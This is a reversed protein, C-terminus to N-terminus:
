EYLHYEDSYTVFRWEEVGQNIPQAGSIRRLNALMDVTAKSSTRIVEVQVPCRTEYVFGRDSSGQGRGIEDDYLEHYIPQDLFEDIQEEFTMNKFLGDTERSASYEKFDWLWFYVPEVAGGNKILDDLYAQMQNQIDPDSQDVDRFFVDVPLGPNDMYLQLSDYFGKVYSDQPVLDTYNFQQELETVFYISVASLGAFLFLSFCQFWPRLIQRAVLGMFRDALHQEQNSDVEDEHQRKTTKSKSSISEERAVDNRVENYSVPEDLKPDTCLPSGKFPESPENESEFTANGEIEEASVYKLDSNRKVKKCFLYDMRNDQIRQEDLVIMAVFFTIQYFFDIGICPFAYLCLWQVSPIQSFSGLIFALMSTLSTLFIAVGIDEMTSEIRKPVDKESEKRHYSGFIIFTDDLGIGFMLFPLMLTNSTFPVGGIFLLGFASMTSGLITAVAGIGLLGRSKVRDCKGFAFIITFIAVIAFSVPILWLDELIARMFEEEYSSESYFELRFPVVDNDGNDKSSNKNHYIQQWQEKLVLLRSIAEAEFKWTVNSRPIGFKILYSEATELLARDVAATELSSSWSSWADFAFDSEFSESELTTNDNSWVMAFDAYKAKGM